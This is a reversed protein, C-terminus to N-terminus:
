EDSVEVRVEIHVPGCFSSPLRYLVRYGQQIARSGHRARPVPRLSRDVTRAFLVDLRRDSTGKSIMSSKRMRFNDRAAAQEMMPVNQFATWGTLWLFLSTVVAPPLISCM